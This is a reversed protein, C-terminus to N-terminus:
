RPRRPRSLDFFAHVVFLAFFPITIADAIVAIAWDNFFSDGFVEIGGEVVEGVVVTLVFVPVAVAFVKWFHPRVLARSRRLAERVGLDEIEVAPAVLAYRTVFIFGPVIFLLFGVAVILSYALDIAILRAYPLSRLAEAPGEQREGRRDSVIAAVIGSYIVTGFLSVLAGAIGAGAAGAADAASAGEGVKNFLAAIGDLLHVPISVMLALGILLPFLARYTDWIEGILRRLDFSPKAM